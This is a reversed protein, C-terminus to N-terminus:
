DRVQLADVQNKVKNRLVVGSIWIGVEYLLFIPASILMQSVVDPPTIIASLVLIVVAAHRRYFRLTLPTVLGAKSLVFIVAPLQFMLACAMVIMLLTSVYSRIDFENVIAPDVQYNALFNVSLPAVGFYGFLVGAVFLLSVWFVAGTSAQREQDYLGPKVFRWIEWFAYPFTLVLGIVFSAALHMTFQGSMTRSQIVFPLEEICLVNSGVAEGLRCLMRYTWFDVRSPGLIIQGFVISKSVFALLTFVGIAILSRILHWRLEELHDLFSM